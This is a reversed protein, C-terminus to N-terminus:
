GTMREGTDKEYARLGFSWAAQFTEKRTMMDSKKGRYVVNWTPLGPRPDYEITLEPTM